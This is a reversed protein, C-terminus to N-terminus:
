AREHRGPRPSPLRPVVREHWKGASLPRGEEDVLMVSHRAMLFLCALSVAHLLIISALMVAM